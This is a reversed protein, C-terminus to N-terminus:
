LDIYRREVLQIFRVGEDVASDIREDILGVGSGTCEWAPAQDQGRLSIM